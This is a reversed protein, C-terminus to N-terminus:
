SNFNIFSSKTTSSKRTASVTCSVSVNFELVSFCFSSLDVDAVVYNGRSLNLTTLVRLTKKIYNIIVLNSFADNLVDHLADKTAVLQVKQLSQIMHNFFIDNCCTRPTGETCM